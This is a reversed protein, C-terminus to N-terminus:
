NASAIMGAIEGHFKTNFKRGLRLAASVMDFPNGPENKRLINRIEQKQEKTLKMNEIM